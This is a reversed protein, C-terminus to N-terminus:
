EYEAADYGDRDDFLLGVGHWAHLEGLPQVEQMSVFGTEAAFLAADFDNWPRILEEGVDASCSIGDVAVELGACPQLQRVTGIGSAGYNTGEKEQQLLSVETKATATTAAAVWGAKMKEMMGAVYRGPTVGMVKRFVRHFHSSTLGAETALIHLTPKSGSQVASGITQCARHVLQVQPSSCGSSSSRGGGDTQLTEPRCRKCARFGAREAQSPRDYFRVNARRALRAPCSARCYIKTTLVAYVFTIATPDRKVVAQWRASACALGPPPPILRPPLKLPPPKPDM